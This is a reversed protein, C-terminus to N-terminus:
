FSGVCGNFLTRGPCCRSGTGAKSCSERTDHRTSFAKKMTELLDEKKKVSVEFELSDSGAVIAITKM